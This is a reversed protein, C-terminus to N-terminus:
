RRRFIDIFLINNNNSNTTTTTLLYYYYYYYYFPWLTPALHHGHVLGWPHPKSDLPWMAPFLVHERVDGCDPWFPVGRDNHLVSHSHTLWTALVADNLQWAVLYNSYNVRRKVDNQSTNCPCVCECTCARARVCVCVCMCVCCLVACCLVFSLGTGIFPVYASRCYMYPWLRSPIWPRIIFHWGYSM